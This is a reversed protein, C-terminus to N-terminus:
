SSFIEEMASKMREGLDGESQLRISFGEASKPFPYVADNWESALYLYRKLRLPLSQLRSLSDDVFALHLEMAAEDGVSAALRTKARGLQPAKAFLAAAPGFEKQDDGDIM